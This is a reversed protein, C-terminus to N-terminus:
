LELEDEDEKKRWSREDESLKKMSLVEEHPKLLIYTGNMDVSFKGNAFDLAKDENKVLFRYESLNTTVVIREEYEIEAPVEVSNTSSEISCKFKDMLSRLNKNNKFEQHHWVEEAVNSLEGSSDYLHHIEAILTTKSDHEYDRYFRYTCFIGLEEDMVYEDSYDFGDPCRCESIINSIKISISMGFILSATFLLILLIRYVFISGETTLTEQKYHYIIFGLSMLLIIQLLAIMIKHIIYKRSRM